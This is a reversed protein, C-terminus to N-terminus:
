KSKNEKNNAENFEKSGEVNAPYKKRLNELDELEIKEIIHPPLDDKGKIESVGIGDGTIEDLPINDRLKNPVEITKLKGNEITVGMKNAIDESLGELEETAKDEMAAEHIRDKLNKIENMLPKTANTVSRNSRLESARDKDIDGIKSMIDLSRKHTEPNITPTHDDVKDEELLDMLFGFLNLLKERKTM